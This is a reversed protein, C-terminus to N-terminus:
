VKPAFLTTEKVKEGRRQPLNKTFFPGVGNEGARFVDPVHRREALPRRRIAERRRSDSPGAHQRSRPGIGVVTLLRPLGYLEDAANMAETIGDTYLVLTEGPALPLACPWLGVDRDVGLPLGTEAEASRSSVAKPGRRLLPPLHGANVVTVEHRQPDLVALVM